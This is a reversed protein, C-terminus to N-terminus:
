HRYRLIKMESWRRPNITSALPLLRARTHEPHLPAIKRSARPLDLAPQRESPRESLPSLSLSARVGGGGGGHATYDIYRITKISFLSTGDPGAPRSAVSHSPIPHSAVHGPELINSPARTSGTGSEEGARTM